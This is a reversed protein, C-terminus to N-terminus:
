MRMLESGKVHARWTLRIASTAAPFGNADKIVAGDVLGAEICLAMHCVKEEETYGSFDPAPEEQEVELLSLRILEMERKM